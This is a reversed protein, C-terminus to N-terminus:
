PILSKLIKEGWFLVVFTALSLFPGYPIVDSKKVWKIVLGVVSGFLPAIFFILLVQKWGLLAGLMGMLKVDGMGMAERKFIL